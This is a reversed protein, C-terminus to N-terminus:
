WVGPIIRRVRSAYCRYAEGFHETLIKEEVSMRYVLSPLLLALVSILGILSSYGLSIGLGMLLYGAYAPHRIFRYPGRQVLEQRKEVSVHGAYDVGLTRRAWVFLASGSAVLGVGCSKTWVTRPLWAEFCIYELPSLYFVAMMALTILWFSRDSREEQVTCGGARSEWFRQRRIFAIIVTGASYAIGTLLLFWGLPNTPVTIFGLVALCIALIPAVVVLFTIALRSV